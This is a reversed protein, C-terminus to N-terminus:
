DMLRTIRRRMADVMIDLNFHEEVAARARVGIERARDPNAMLSEVADRLGEVSGPAVLLCTKGDSMAQRDWLGAIDSIVVAKGCAMAQLCASQGSPQITQRIPLVVFDAGQYLDRIEGDSLLRQRWDGAIVEVRGASAPVPLRTVIKLPPFEPRWARALTAYDRGVDNGVSLVYRDSDREGERPVWFRNDVGFPLYELDHRGGLFGRLHDVEARSIPALAANKLVWRYAAVQLRPPDLPLVGMPIFIMKARFLGVAGLFALSVGQSNTTAVVIEHDNLRALIGVRSFRAIVQPHLGTVRHVIRALRTVWRLSPPSAFDAEEILDVQFGAAELEPLGYLFESPGADALQMRSRRGGKFLYAVRRTGENKRDAPPSAETM